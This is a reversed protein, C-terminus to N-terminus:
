KCKQKEVNKHFNITLPNMVLGRDAPCIIDDCVVNLQKRLINLSGNVDANILMGDKTKYLGRKVRRGSPKFKNDDLGYTPIYDNDFFSCKSTYSEDTVIVNIGEMQCKYKLMGIFTNHPISVFKQNNVKGINTEQSTNAPLARYDVQNENHMEKNVAYYDKYTKDAFFQQRVRYLAQNYLNKSKLCLDDLTKYRSDEPKIIHRGVLKM